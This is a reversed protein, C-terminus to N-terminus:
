VVGVVGVVGVEAGVVIGVDVARMGSSASVVVVVPSGSVLVVSGAGTMSPILGLKRSCMM